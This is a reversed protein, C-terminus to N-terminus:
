RDSKEHFRNAPPLFAARMGPPIEFQERRPWKEGLEPLSCLNVFLGTGRRIFAALSGPLRKQSGEKRKRCKTLYCSGRMGCPRCLGKTVMRIAKRM